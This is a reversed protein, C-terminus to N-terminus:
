SDSIQLLISSNALWINWKWIKSLLLVYDPVYRKLSRRLHHRQYCRWEQRLNEYETAPTWSLYCGAFTVCTIRRHRRQGAKKERYKEALPLQWGPCLNQDGGYPRYARSYLQSRMRGCNNWLVLQRSPLRCLSRQGDTSRMTVQPRRPVTPCGM